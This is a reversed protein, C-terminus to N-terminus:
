LGEKGLGEYESMDDEVDKRSVGPYHSYLDDVFANIEELPDPTLTEMIKEIQQEIGEQPTEPNAQAKSFIEKVTELVEPSVIEGFDFNPAYGPLDHFTYGNEAKYFTNPEHRDSTETNEQKDRENLKKIRNNEINEKIEEFSM